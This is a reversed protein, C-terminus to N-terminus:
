CLRLQAATLIGSGFPQHRLMAKPQSCLGMWTSSWVPYAWVATPIRIERRLVSQNVYQFMAATDLLISKSKGYLCRLSVIPPRIIFADLQASSSDVLACIRCSPRPEGVTNSKLLIVRQDCDGIALFESAPSWRLTKVGLGITDADQGGSYTKYLHGDPTCILVNYGASAADWIALWQGNPSWLIGQADMTALEVTVVPGSGSTQCFLLIDHLSPRTLLALHGTRPRLGYCIPVQKPARLELGEQKSISILTVKFGFDSFVLLQDKTVGFQVDAISGTNGALNGIRVNRHAGDSDYVRVIDDDALLFRWGSEERQLDAPSERQQTVSNNNQDYWM